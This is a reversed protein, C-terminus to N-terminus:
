PIHIPAAQGGTKHCNNCNGGGANLTGIMPTTTPCASAKTTANTPAPLLLPTTYFNGLSDTVLKKTVGGNTVLITAGAYPQTGAADRYVTGGYSYETAGAGLNGTLHCGAGLCTQGANHHGLAPSAVVTECNSGGDGGGGGGDGGGGGGDGGAHAVVSGVDCGAAAVLVTFIVVLRTM